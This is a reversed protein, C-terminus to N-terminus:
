LNLLFQLPTTVSVAATDSGKVAYCRASATPSDLLKQRDDDLDGGQSSVGFVESTMWDNNARLFQSLLPLRSELWTTPAVNKSVLDWASVVIALRM